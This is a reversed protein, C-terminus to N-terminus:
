QCLLFFNSMVLQVFGAGLTILCPEKMEQLTRFAVNMNHWSFNEQADGMVVCNPQSKEIGDFEPMADAVNYLNAFLWTTKCKNWIVILKELSPYSVQASWFTLDSPINCCTPNVPQLLHSSRALWAFYGGKDVEIVVKIWKMEVLEFNSRIKVTLWVTKHKHIYIHLIFHSGTRFLEFM